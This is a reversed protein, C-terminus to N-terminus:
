KTEGSAYANRTVEVEVQPDRDIGIHIDGQSGSM